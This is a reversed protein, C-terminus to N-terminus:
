FKPCSVIVKKRKKQQEKDQLFEYIISIEHSGGTKSSLGSITLDYSYGIKLDKLQYGALIAVADHNVYDSSYKKFGPIGRYWVGIVMPRKSWYLGIDLQDYESQTKYIFAPTILEEDYKGYRNNISFKTGGFISYRMPVNSEAGLLSENPKLMHNVSLGVWNRESFFLASSSFDIYGIQKESPIEVSTSTNYVMQDSFKLNYFDVGRQSYMLHIGPRFSWKRNITLNYSYQLGINTTRLNGHGAQDQLFLLGLGSNVNSFYHDYSFSYTNYGGAILGWQNRYNLAVRSGDTAGAFSPALYLPAAYFQSFQADQALVNNVNFIKLAIFIFLIVYIKNM